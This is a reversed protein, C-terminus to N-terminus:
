QSQVSLFQSSLTQLQTECLITSFIELISEKRLNCLLKHVIPKNQQLSYRAITTIFKEKLEQNILVLSDFLFFSEVSLLEFIFLAGPQQSCFFGNMKYLNSSRCLLIALKFDTSFKFFSDLHSETVILAYLEIYRSGSKSIIKLSLRAKVIFTQLHSNGSTPSVYFDILLEMCLM